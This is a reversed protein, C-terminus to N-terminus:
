ANRADDERPVPPNINVFTTFAWFMLDYWEPLRRRGLVFTALGLTALTAPVATRLDVGGRTVNQIHTNFRDLVGRVRAGSAIQSRDVHRDVEVGDFGGADLIASLVAPLQVRHTDYEVLLSGTFPSLRHSVVGTERDLRASVAQAVDADLRLAEARVRLRGPFHYVVCLATM